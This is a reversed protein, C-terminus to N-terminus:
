TNATLYLYYPSNRAEHISFVPGNNEFHNDLIQIAANNLLHLASGKHGSLNSVFKNNQILIQSSAIVSFAGGKSMYYGINNYFYSDTVSVSAANYISLGNASTYSLNRRFRTKSVLVSAVTDIFINSSLAINDQFDCNNITVTQKSM